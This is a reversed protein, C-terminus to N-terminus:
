VNQLSSKDMWYENANKNIFENEYYVIFLSKINCVYIEHTNTLPLFPLVVVVVFFLKMM